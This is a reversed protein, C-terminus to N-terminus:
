LVRSVTLGDRIPLLVTEVRPDNNLRQNYELLIKTSLDGEKLPEVVKGSWLVNDSFIYGGPKVKDFVLNYYHIYNQKDADIFVLDFQEDRFPLNEADAHLYAPGPGKILKWSQALPEILAAVEELAQADNHLNAQTLRMTSYDYLQRLNAAIAKGDILHATMSAHNVMSFSVSLIACERVVRGSPLPPHDPM